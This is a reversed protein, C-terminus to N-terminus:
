RSARWFRRSLLGGIWGALLALLSHGIRVFNETTGNWGGRFRSSTLDRVWGLGQSPTAPQNGTQGFVASQVRNSGFGSNITTYIKITTSRGPVKSDVYTLAKTTLLRSEISPVVSFVLYTWGFLAFGLWFARGSEARHIVLHTSIVLVGVILTFLRSEWLDSPEKLAAFGVGLVFIIALLDAINFRLKPMIRDDSPRHVLRIGTSMMVINGNPNSIRLPRDRSENSSSCV